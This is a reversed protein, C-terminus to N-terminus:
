STGIASEGALKYTTFTRPGKSDSVTQVQATKSVKQPDQLRQIRDCIEQRENLLVYDYLKLM